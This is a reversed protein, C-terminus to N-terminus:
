KKSAERRDALEQRQQAARFSHSDKNVLAKARLDKLHVGFDLGNKTSLLNIDPL